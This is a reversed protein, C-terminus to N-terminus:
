EQGFDGFFIAEIVTKGLLEKNTVLTKLETKPLKNRIEDLIGQKEENCTSGMVHVVGYDSRKVGELLRDIKKSIVGSDISTTYSKNAFDFIKINELSVKRQRFNEEVKNVSRLFEMVEVSNRLEESLNIFRFFLPDDIDADIALDMNRMTDLLKNIERLGALPNSSSFKISVNPFNITAEIEESEQKKTKAM